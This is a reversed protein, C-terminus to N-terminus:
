ELKFTTDTHGKASTLTAAIDAGKLADLDVGDTLDAEFTVVDGNASVKRAPPFYAGGPASFFVDAGDPGEPFTAEVILKPKGSNQDIATRKLVPDLPKAKASLRPVSDLAAIQETTIVGSGDAPVDLSVKIEAPICIDKCMGFQVAVQLEAAKAADQVTVEVPFIVEDTYGIVEGGGKEPIRKPVPFLVNAAALNQSGSWDFSPPLGSEGPAKWYTKWGKPMEIKIFAIMHKTGLELMRAASIRTRANYSEAWDSTLEEDARLPAVVTFGAVLVATVTALTLRRFQRFAPM